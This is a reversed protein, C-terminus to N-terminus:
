EWTTFFSVALAIVAVLLGTIFQRDKQKVTWSDKWKDRQRDKRLETQSETREGKQNDTQRDTQAVM